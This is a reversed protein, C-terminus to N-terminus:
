SCSPDEQTFFTRVRAVEACLVSYLPMEDRDKLFVDDLDRVIDHIGNYLEDVDQVNRDLRKVIIPRFYDGDPEGPEADLETTIERGLVYAVNLASELHERILERYALRETVNM